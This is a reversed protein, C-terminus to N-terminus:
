KNVEKVFGFENLYIKNNQLITSPAKERMREVMKIKADEDGHNFVVLKLNNFKKLFDVIQDAKAHSSMELTNDILCKKKIVRGDILEVEEDAKTDMLYRGLTDEACYSCFYVIGDQRELIAPIHEKAPGHTAMSSTTLVICDKEAIVKDRETHSIIKLGKPLFYEKDQPIEDLERWKYTYDIALKGDLYIQPLNFGSEQIKRLRLLLEQTKSLAAVPIIIKKHQKVYNKLDKEFKEEIQSTETLGYTSECMVTLPLDLVQDPLTPTEYFANRVNYDGTFLINIVENKYAANVQLYWPLRITVLVFAAGVIHANKFLRIVINNDKGEYFPANYPKGEIFRLSELVDEKYYLPTKSKERAEQLHIEASNDLAIPALEKSSRTMYISNKFGKKVLLPIRGAHDMHMHTIVAFDIEEPNFPFNENEKEYETETYLGCDILFKEETRDPYRVTVLTTSGTVGKTVTALTVFFGSKDTKPILKEM